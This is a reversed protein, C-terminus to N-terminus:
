GPSHYPLTMTFISGQGRVSEVTLRGGHREVIDRCISLGIGLGPFTKGEASSVRYFRDFIKDLHEAGIGIGFDEVQISAGAPTDALRVVVRKAQPSYKIANTLLNAVVQGLRDSDGVVRGQIAGEIAIAHNEATAQIDDVIAAVLANLNLAEHRLELKGAEIKSVDLLDEILQGLKGIQRNMKRLQDGTRADGAQAAQRLLLEAYVKLSTVPTKLEHSAISIFDDRLAVARQSAQFLRANAIALAVRSALEEAMALDAKTYHRGSEAAVFTIAGITRREVVLPVIMVSSFGVSRALDLDRENKAMAVLLDDTILPYFEPKGTRLVRPLGDLDNLNVPNARRLARGWKVKKPDVHAMALLEVRTPGTLLDVTCWDAFHPVALKAVNRLTKGYDLSSALVKSAKALFVLNQELAKQETIDRAFIAVGGATPYVTNAYWRYFRPFFTEIREARRTHMVRQAAEHLPLSQADPFLDQVRKGVMEQAAKQALKAGAANVRVYRFERDLEYVGDQLLAILEAGSGAALLEADHAPGIPEEAPPLPLTTGPASM